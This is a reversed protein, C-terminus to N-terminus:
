IEFRQVLENLTEAQASLEESTASTEEAAASNSQVVESIQNVGAEVQEMADAQKESNQSLEKSKEAIAGMGAVVEDLTTSVVEVARNGEQVEHLSNEILGRTTVASQASQEALQRIEDAVVAFGKGAEGARAAEISANLSLLNTQSAIDELDSIIDEIKESTESIRQMAQVMAEMQVRSQEADSMYHEAENYSQKLDEATKEVGGTIDTITAQLEEVASAQETAGEALDQAANALNESGATVQASAEGVQKLTDAVAEKMKRASLLLEGFKGVYRDQKHTEANFKGDALQAFLNSMDNVILSINEAMGRTERVMVAVEDTGDNTPFPSDLDGEAFTKLRDQLEKLPTAIGNAIGTGIKISVVATFAVVAGIALMFILALVQLTRQISKGKQVNIDMLSKMDDYVKDYESTLENICRDQAQRSVTTDTVAGLEIIEDSLTWYTKLDNVILQYADKGEKTVMYQEILNVYDQCKEKKTNYEDSVQEIADADAYGIAANLDGRADAFVTMAKGIDGQSFGYNELAHNYRFMLIVMALIGLVAAVSALALVLMHSTTLRKKIKMDQLKTM